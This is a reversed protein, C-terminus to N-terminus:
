PVQLYNAARVAPFSSSMREGSTTLEYARNVDDLFSAGDRSGWKFDPTSSARFSPLEGPHKSEHVAQTSPMANAPAKRTPKSSQAPHLKPVSSEGHLTDFELILGDYAPFLFHEPVWIGTPHGATIALYEPKM